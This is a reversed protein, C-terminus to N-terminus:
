EATEEESSAAPKGKAPAAKLKKIADAITEEPMDSFAPWNRTIRVGEPDYGAAILLTTFEAVQEPSAVKAGFSEADKAAAEADDPVHRQEVKEGRKPKATLVAGFLDDFTPDVHKSGLPLVEGVVGRAKEVIFTRTEAKATTRIVADFYYPTSKEADPKVGRKVAEGNVMEIDDKERAVVVVHVPLNVLRTMMAKYNRKIRGWDLMELDVNDPDFDGKAQRMKRAIRAKLAAEQLTDYIVTVPDIVLTRYDKPNAEIFDLAAIVDRYSKTTIVDFNFKGKYLATGGETDIVAVPGPSGLAFYTKGSGWGGYLFAKIVPEVSTAPAFPNAKAAM